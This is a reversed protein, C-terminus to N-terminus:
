CSADLQQKNMGIAIDQVKGTRMARNPLRRCCLQGDCCAGNPSCICKECYGQAHQVLADGCSHTLFWHHTFRLKAKEINLMRQKAASADKEAAKVKSQELQWRLRRRRQWFDGCFVFAGRRSSQMSRNRLMARMKKQLM